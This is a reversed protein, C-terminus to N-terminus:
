YDINRIVDFLEKGKLYEMLFYINIEDELCKLLKVILPHDIKLLINKELQINM